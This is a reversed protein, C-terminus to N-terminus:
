LAGHGLPHQAPSRAAAVEINAAAADDLLVDVDHARLALGVSTGILGCGVVLVPGPLASPAIATM